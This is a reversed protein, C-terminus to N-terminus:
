SVTVLQSALTYLTFTDQPLDKAIEEMRDHFIDLKTKLPVAPDEMVKEEEPIDTDGIVDMIATTSTGSRLPRPPLGPPQERSLFRRLGNYYSDSRELERQDARKARESTVDHIFIKIIQDPFRDYLMRYIEPDREGSDGVLIFKRKPFDKVI